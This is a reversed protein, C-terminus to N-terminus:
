KNTVGPGAVNSSFFHFGLNICTLIFAADTAVTKIDSVIAPSLSGFQVSGAAIGTLIAFIVNLWIATAPNIGNQM